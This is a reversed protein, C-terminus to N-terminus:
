QHAPVSVTLYADLDYPLPSAPTPNSVVPCSAVGCGATNDIRVPLNYGDVLSVDYYDLGDSASLTFEALSAPPVGTGTHTDCELGGNCGGDRCSNPGPDSSFDCDRRAQM